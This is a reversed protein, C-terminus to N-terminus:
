HTNVPNLKISIKHHCLIHDFLFHVSYFIAKHCLLTPIHIDNSFLCPLLTLRQLFVLYIRAVNLRNIHQLATAQLSAATTNWCTWVSSNINCCRSWRSGDVSAIAEMERVKDHFRRWKTGSSIETLGECENMWEM